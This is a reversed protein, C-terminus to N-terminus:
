NPTGRHRRLARRFDDFPLTNLVDSPSAWARRAVLIGWRKM